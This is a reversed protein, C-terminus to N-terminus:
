AGLDVARVKPNGKQQVKMMDPAFESLESVIESVIEYTPLFTHLYRM